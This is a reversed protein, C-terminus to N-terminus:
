EPLLVKLAALEEVCYPAEIYYQRRLQRLVDEIDQRTRSDGRYYIKTLLPLLLSLTNLERLKNHILEGTKKKWELVEQVHTKAMGQVGAISFGELRLAINGVSTGLCADFFASARSTQFIHPQNFHEVDSRVAFLLIEM